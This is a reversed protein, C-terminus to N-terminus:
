LDSFLPLLVSPSLCSARAAHARALALVLALSDMQHCKCCQETLVKLPYLEDVRIRFGVPSRKRMVYEKAALGLEGDQDDSGLVGSFHQSVSMDLKFYSTMFPM